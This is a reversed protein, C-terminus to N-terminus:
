FFLRYRGQQDPKGLFPLASKLQTPFKAGPQIHGTGKVNVRNGASAIYASFTLGLDNKPNIMAVLKGDDCTIDAAFKGLAINQELAIVGARSWTAEGKAQTCQKTDLMINVQSLQLEVQGKASIPLPMPLHQAIENAGLYLTVDSLALETQSIALTLKGEPGALLENGFTLEVTPMLTFLSWFSLQAEIDKITNGDVVLQAVNGHWITGSVAEVSINKPLKSHNVVLALPLTAVLFVIYCSLFVAGLSFWKKM